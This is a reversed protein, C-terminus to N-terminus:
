DNIQFIITKYPNLSLDNLDIKEHTLINKFENKNSLYEKFRDINIKKENPSVNSIVMIKSSESERIYVYVGEDYPQFHILKGSAIASNTKRLKALQSILDFIGNEETTRESRNFKNSNDEAWGGPFDRRVEADSPNKFNKMLIESGYYLQPIGRMTMLWILGTKYKELDEGIVSFFRDEDHNDLYTVLREPNQYLYDQVLTLYLKNVGDSWGFPENLATKVAVFFAHDVTSELNCDFPLGKINNKVFAAQNPLPNALSEGFLFLKPFERLLASNCRNMFAMDNYMYTDIRFADIGFHAVTWIAHQILYKAVFENKHNLDPLFPMFWGNSTIDKDYQTSHPDVVPQEKYSTNTYRDWQNLWDKMPLNKLTYHNIGVHNYVADQIVKIGKEHAANVLSLYADNGGLRRDIHYHDTFGYGHYASRMNGGENTQPQNNEIVPNLWLASVGLEKFYDLHQEVGQMDGGHRLWPNNRDAASDLMDAYKDNEYNGNAFRDPMLLYIFDSNSIGPTIYTSKSKLEYQFRIEKAASVFAFNLIGAKAKPSIEIDVFCYDPNEVFHIAKIKVGKYKELKVDSNGLNKGSFMIQLSPNQMGIWWFTPDARDINQAFSKAFSLLWIVWMAMLAMQTKNKM